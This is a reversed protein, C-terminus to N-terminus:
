VRLCHSATTVPLFRRFGTDQLSPIICINISQVQRIAAPNTHDEQTPSFHTTTSLTTLTRTRGKLTRGQAIFLTQKRQSQPKQVEVHQNESIRAEGTIKRSTTICIHSLSFALTTPIVCYASLPIEPAHQCLIFRVHKPM